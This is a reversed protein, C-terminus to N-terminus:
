HQVDDEFEKQPGLNNANRLDVKLRFKCLDCFLLSKLCCILLSHAVAGESLNVISKAMLFHSTSIVLAQHLPQLKWALPLLLRSTM